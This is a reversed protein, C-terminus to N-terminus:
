SGLHRLTISVNREWAGFPLQDGNPCTVLGGKVIVITGFYYLKVTLYSNHLGDWHSHCPPMEPDSSGCPPMGDGDTLKIFEQYHIPTKIAAVKKLFDKCFVMNPMGLSHEDACLTPSILAAGILAIGPLWPKV